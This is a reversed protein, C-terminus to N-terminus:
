REANALHSSFTSKWDANAFKAPVSMERNPYCICFRVQPAYGSSFFSHEWHFFNGDGDSEQDRGQASGALEPM